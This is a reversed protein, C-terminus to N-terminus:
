SAAFSIVFNIQQYDCGKLESLYAKNHIGFFGDQKTLHVNM